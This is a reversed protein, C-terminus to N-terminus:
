HRKFIFRSRIPKIYVSQLNHHFQGMNRCVSLQVGTRRPRSKSMFARQFDVSLYPSQGLPGYYGQLDYGHLSPLASFQYRYSKRDQGSYAEAM